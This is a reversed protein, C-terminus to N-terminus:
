KYRRGESNLMVVPFHIAQPPIPFCRSVAENWFLSCALFHPGSIDVRFLLGHSLTSSLCDIGQLYETTIKHSFINGVAVCLASSFDLTVM